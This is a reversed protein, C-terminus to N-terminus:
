YFLKSNYSNASSSKNLDEYIHQNESREAKIPLTEGTSYRSTTGAPGTLIEAPTWNEAGACIKVIEQSFDFIRDRSRLTRDSCRFNTCSWQQQGFEAVM